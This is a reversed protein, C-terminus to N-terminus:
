NWVVLDHENFHVKCHISKFDREIFFFILIFNKRIRLFFHELMLGYKVKGEDHMKTINLHIFFFLVSLILTALSWKLNIFITM